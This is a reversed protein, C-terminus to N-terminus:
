SKSKEAWKEINEAWQSEFGPLIRNEEKLYLRSLDDLDDKKAALYEVFYWYNWETAITWNEQDIRCDPMRFHFTPRKSVNGIGKLRSVNEDLMALVPYLDLPRNRDPNYLHYDKIFVDLDPRYSETLINRTFDDPFPNIFTTLRRSYDPMMNKKLWPYLVLFARLYNLITFINLAPLEPNIHLAFAYLVSAKTGKAQNDKLLRRVKDITEMEDLNVPPTVVECPVVTSFINELIKETKAIIEKDDEPNEMDVGLLDILKSYKKEYLFSTDIKVTFDGPISGKIEAYYRNVKEIKGGFKESILEAVHLPSLGGFELEFGIKRIEGNENTMIPPMRFELTSTEDGPTKNMSNM